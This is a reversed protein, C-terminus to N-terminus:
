SSTRSQCELIIFPALWHTLPLLLAGNLLRSVIGKIGSRFGNYFGKHVRLHAGYPALLRRYDAVPLIRETWSGTAPDCTNYRDKLVVPQNDRVAKLVDDFVLGRTRDAWTLAARHSLDPRQTLIFDRRQLRFLSEDNKMIRHLRRKVWPNYPTSGTTFLMPMGPNVAYLDAFFDELRYIHEIVDMGLLVDPRLGNDECWRRLVSSDGTLVVDPGEGVAASVVKVAEAAQPNVDVYVVRGVGCRKAAMSLFGHGGGYDVLTLESPEKKGARLMSHLCRGYISMYYDLDPLMRLIYSRSYDSLPLKGYDLAKLTATLSNMKTFFPFGSRM